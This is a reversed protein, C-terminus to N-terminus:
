VKEVLIQAAVPRTLTWENGDVEITLPGDPLDSAVVRVGVQPRLGLDALHRLLDADDDPVEAVHARQGVAVEILPRVARRPLTGDRAPIPQGHPDAQPEGLFAALRDAVRQSTAHELRHAEAHVKDWSLGLVDTLFLEWLRHRRLLRLAEQEGAGTLVVGHYPRYAVLGDRHLKRMMGTVSPPAVGLQAALATTSVPSDSGQLRYITLLYDQVSVSSM